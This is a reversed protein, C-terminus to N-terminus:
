FVRQLFSTTFMEPDIYEFSRKRCSITKGKITVSDKNILQIAADRIESVSLGTGLAPDTEIEKKNARRIRRFQSYWIYTDPEKSTDLYELVYARTNLFEAPLYQHIFMGRSYGKPNKSEGTFDKLWVELDFMRDGHAIMRVMCDQIKPTASPQPSSADGGSIYQQKGILKLAVRKSVEVLTEESCRCEENARAIVGLNTGKTSLLQMNLAYLTGLKSISGTAVLGIDMAGAVEILCKTDDCGAKLKEEVVSSLAALADMSQVSYYEGLTSKIIDSLAEATQLDVGKQPRLSKVMLPEQAHVSTVCLLLAILLIFTKNLRM